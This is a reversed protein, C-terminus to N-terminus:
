DAGTLAMIDAEAKAPDESICVAPAGHRLAAASAVGDTADLVIGACPDVLKVLYSFLDIRAQFQAFFRSADGSQANLMKAACGDVCRWVAVEEMGDADAAGDWTQAETPDGDNNFPRAGDTRNWTGTTPVREIGEKVCEPKHFLVINSPWRGGDIPTSNVVNDKGRFYNQRNAPMPLGRNAYYMAGSDPENAGSRIRCGDINLGGVGWRRINEQVSGELPKRMVFGSGYGLVRITDRMELGADEYWCGDQFGSFLLLHAGPKMVGVVYPAWGGTDPREVFVADVSEEPVQRVTRIVTLGDIM